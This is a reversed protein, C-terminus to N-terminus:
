RRKTRSNQLTTRKYVKLAESYLSEITKDIVMQSYKQANREYTKEMFPNRAPELKTGFELTKYYFRPQKDGTATRLGIFAAKMKKSYRMKLGRRLQGTGGPPSAKKMDRLVVRATSRIGADSAKEGVTPGFAAIQKLLFDVNQLELGV